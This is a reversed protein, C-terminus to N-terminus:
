GEIRGGVTAALTHIHGDIQADDTSERVSYHRWLLFGVVGAVVVAAALLIYRRRPRARPPLEPRPAEVEAGGAAGRAGGERAARRRRPRARPEPPGGGDARGRGGGGRQPVEAEGAGGARALATQAVNQDYVATIQSETAEAGAQQAQVLDINNAVGAAFRD